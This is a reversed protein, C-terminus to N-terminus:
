KAMQIKTYKIVIRRNTEIQKLMQCVTFSKAYNGMFVFIENLKNHIQKIQKIKNKALVSTNFPLHINSQLSYKIRHTFKINKRHLCNENLKTTFEHRLIAFCKNQKFCM